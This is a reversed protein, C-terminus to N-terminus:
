INDLKGMSDAYKIIRALIEANTEGTEVKAAELRQKLDPQITTYFPADVDEEQKFIKEYADAGLAEEAWLRAAEETIPTITEGYDWTNQGIMKAYKSKANGQGFIFYKCPKDGYKKGRYLSEKYWTFLRKDASPEKEALLKATDTDYKAGKIIKKM